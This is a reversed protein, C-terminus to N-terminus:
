VLQDLCRYLGELSDSHGMHERLPMNVLYTAPKRHPLFKLHPFRFARSAQVLTILM